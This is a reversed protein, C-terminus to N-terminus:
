SCEDEEREFEDGAEDVIRKCLDVLHRRAREEETSLDDFLNDYCDRLDGLTNQFRAYGMNAM